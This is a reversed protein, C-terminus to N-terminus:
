LNLESKFTAVELVVLPIVGYILAGQQVLQEPSSLKLLINRYEEAKLYSSASMLEIQM